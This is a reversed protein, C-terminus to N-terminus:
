KINGECRKHQRHCYCDMEATELKEDTEGLPEEKHQCGIIYEAPFKEGSPLKYYPNQKRVVMCDADSRCISASKRLPEMLVNVCMAQVCAVVSAPCIMDCIALPGEQNQRCDKLLQAYKEEFKRNIPQGGCECSESLCDTEVATCDTDAECAQDEQTIKIEVMEDAFVGCPSVILMFIFFAKWFEKVAQAMVHSTSHRLKDLDTKYEMKKRIM